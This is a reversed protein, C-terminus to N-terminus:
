KKDEAGDKEKKGKGKDPKKDPDTMSKEIEELKAQMDKILEGQEVILKDQDSITKNNKSLEKKNKQIVRQAKNLLENKEKAKDAKAKDDATLEGGEVVSLSMKKHGAAAPNGEFYKEIKSQDVTNYGPFLRLNQLGVAKLVIVSKSDNKVIM